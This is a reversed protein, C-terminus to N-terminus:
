VNARDKEEVFGVTLLLRGEGDGRIGGEEEGGVRRCRGIEVAAGDGRRPASTM